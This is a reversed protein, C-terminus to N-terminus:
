KTNNEQVQEYEAMNIDVMSQVSKSITQQLSDLDQGSLMQRPNNEKNANLSPELENLRKLLQEVQGMEEASLGQMKNQLYNKQIQVFTHMTFDDMEIKSDPQQENNINDTDSM